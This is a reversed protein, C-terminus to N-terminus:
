PPSLRSTATGSAPKAEDEDGGGKTQDYLKKM